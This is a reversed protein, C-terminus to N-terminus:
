GWWDQLAPFDDQNDEDDCEDHGAASREAGEDADNNAEKSTRKAQDNCCKDHQSGDGRAGDRQWHSGEGDGCVRFEGDVVISAVHADKAALAVLYLYAACAIDAFKEAIAAFHRDKRGLVAITDADVDLMPAEQAEKMNAVDIQIDVHRSAEINLHLAIGTGEIDDADTTADVGAGVRAGDHHCGGLQRIPGKQVGVGTGNRDVLGCEIASRAAM